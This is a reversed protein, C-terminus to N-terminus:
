RDSITSEGNAFPVDGSHSFGHGMAPGVSGPGPDRSITAHSQPVPPQGDYVEGVQRCLRHAILIAREPNYKVPLDVVMGLNAVFEDGKAPMAPLCIVGVGFDDKVGELLPANITDLLEAPHKGDCEPVGAFPLKPEDTVADADLRKAIADMVTADGECGLDLCKQLIRILLARDILLGEIVIEREQSCRSRVSQKFANVLERCARPHADGFIASQVFVAVPINQVM